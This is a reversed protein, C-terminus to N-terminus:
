LFLARMARAHGREPYEVLGLTRLCGLPNRIGGGSPEM